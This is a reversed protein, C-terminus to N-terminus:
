LAGPLVCHMTLRLSFCTSPFSVCCLTAVRTASHCCTDFSRVQFYLNFASSTVVVCFLAFFILKILSDVSQEVNSRKLPGTAVACEVASFM